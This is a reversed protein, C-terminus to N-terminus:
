LSIGNRIRAEELDFEREIRRRSEDSIRNGEYATSIAGREVAILKLELSKMDTTPKNVDGAAVLNARRERHFRRLADYAGQSGADEAEIRDIRELVADIAEARAKEEKRQNAAAERAGVHGLGLWRVLWSLTGGQLILTAFIVCLTVFLILDRHPFLGGGVVLPVSLGAALSVAGRLGAYGVLFPPRWNPAPQRRRLPPWLLRPLYTVPFVWVFRVVIVTASVLAGATLLEPWGENALNTVIVRTQLGTVLFALAEICWNVLDWIFFGQLRTSPRIFNRGNWSVYLGTVVCAVVGSGGLEHPPWFAVFPTALALLVEARAERVFHRLRLMVFGVALGFAIEGCVIAFFKGVALAPSFAGTAVAELAFTLTVLATADNILSEGELITLLRRPLRMERLVAMAAVADPPSVIAGLVFGVPWSLGLAYHGVAAVASATFLVCGIAMLLIQLSNARFGRWSMGVGSSYILPPLFVLLVLEPDLTIAPVGPIFAIALGAVLMVVPAVAGVRRALASLLAVAVFMALILSLELTELMDSNEGAGCAAAQVSNTELADIAVKNESRRETSAFPLRACGL